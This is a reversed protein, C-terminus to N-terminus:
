HTRPRTIFATIQKYRLAFLASAGLVLAGAAAVLRLNPKELINLSMCTTVFMGPLRGVASLLFFKWAKMRTLGIFYAFFDKPTPLIFLALLVFASTTGALIEEVRAITKASFFLTVVRRGLLRSLYFSVATGIATGVIGTVMGWGMGYIMGSVFQIAAAPIFSIIVHLAHLGTVIVLGASGYGIITEQMAQATEMLSGGPTEGVIGSYLKFLWAFLGILLLIVAIHLWDRAEIKRKLRFKM